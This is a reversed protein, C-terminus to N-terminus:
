GLLEDVGCEFVNAIAVLTSVRVDPHAKLRIKMLTSVPIDALKALRDVSLKKKKRLREINAAINESQTM